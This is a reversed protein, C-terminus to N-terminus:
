RGSPDVSKNMYYTAVATAGLVVPLLWLVNLLIIVNQSM